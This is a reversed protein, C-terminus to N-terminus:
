MWHDYNGSALKVVTSTYGEADTLMVIYPQPDHEYSQEDEDMVDSWDGIYETGPKRRFIYVRPILKSVDWELFFAGMTAFGIRNTLEKNNAVEELTIGDEPIVQVIVPKISDHQEM